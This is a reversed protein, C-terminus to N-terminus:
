KLPDGAGSKARITNVADLHREIQLKVSQTRYTSLIGLSHLNGLLDAARLALDKESGTLLSAPWRWKAWEIFLLLYETQMTALTLNRHYRGLGRIKGSKSRPVNASFQRPIWVVRARSLAYLASGRGAKSGLKPWEQGNLPVTLGDWSFSRPQRLCALGALAKTLAPQDRPDTNLVAPGVNADIVTAILWPNLLPKDVLLVGESSALDLAVQLAIDEMSSPPLDKGKYARLEFQSARLAALKQVLSDMSMSGRWRLTFILAFGHPYLYVEHWFEPSGSNAKPPTDLEGGDAKAVVLKGCNPMRLPMLHSRAGGPDMEGKSLRSITWPAGGPQKAQLYSQWFAQAPKEGAPWPLQLAQPESEKAASFKSSYTDPDLLASATRFMGPWVWSIRCERVIPFGSPQGPQSCEPAVQNEDDSM